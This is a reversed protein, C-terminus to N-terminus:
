RIKRLREADTDSLRCADRNQRALVDDTLDDIAEQTDLTVAELVTVRFQADDRAKVAQSLNLNASELQSKLSAVETSSRCLRSATWYGVGFGGLAAIAVAALILILNRLATM